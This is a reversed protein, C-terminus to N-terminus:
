LKVFAVTFRDSTRRRDGAALPSDNSDRADSRTVTSDDVVARFQFWEVKQVVFPTVSM